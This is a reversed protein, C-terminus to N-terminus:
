KSVSEIPPSKVRVKAAKNRKRHRKDKQQLRRDARDIIESAETDLKCAVCVGDGPNKTHKMLNMIDLLLNRPLTIEEAEVRM